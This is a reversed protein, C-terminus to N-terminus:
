VPQNKGSDNPSYFMVIRKHLEFPEPQRLGRFPGMTLHHLKRFAWGARAEAAQPVPEATSTAPLTLRPLESLVFSRQSRQRSSAAVHPFSESVLNAFSAVSDPRHLWHVFQQFDQLASTM